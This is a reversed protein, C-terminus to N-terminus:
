RTPAPAAASVLAFGTTDIVQLLNSGVAVLHRGTVDLRQRAAVDASDVVARAGPDFLQLGREGLLFFRGGAITADNVVGSDGARARAISKPRAPDSLDLAITAHDGVLIGLRGATRIVRPGVARGVRLEHPTRGAFLDDQTISYLNQGDTFLLHAGARALGRVRASWLLRPAESELDLWFLGRHGALVFGSGLAEVGSISGVQGNDLRRLMSPGGLGYLSVVEVGEEGFIVARTGALRVGKWRSLDGERQYDSLLVPRLPDSLDFVQFAGDEFLAAARGGEADVAVAPKPLELPERLAARSSWSAVPVFFESWYRKGTAGFLISDGERGEHPSARFAFERSWVSEADGAASLTVRTTALIGSPTIEGGSVESAVMAEGHRIALVASVGGADGRGALPVLRSRAAQYARQARETFVRILREPGPTAPDIEILLGVASFGTRDRLASLEASRRAEAAYDSEPFRSAFAALQEPRGLYGGHRLYEANGMARRAHESGPLTALFDAYADASALARAARLSREEVLPAIQRSLRSKPFESRFARLGALTPNANLETAALRERAQQAHRSKPHDNLFRSYATPTNESRAVRWPGGCGWWASLLLCILLWNVLRLTIRM